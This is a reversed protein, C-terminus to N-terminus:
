FGQSHPPGPGCPPPQRALFLCVFWILGVIIVKLFKWHSHVDSIFTMHLILPVTAETFTMYLRVPLTSTPIAGSIWMRGNSLKLFYYQLRDITLSPVTRDTNTHVPVLPSGSHVRHQTLTFPCWHHAATFVTSSVLLLTIAARIKVM